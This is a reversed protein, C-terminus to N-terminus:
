NIRKFFITELDHQLVEDITKTLMETTNEWTFKQVAQIGNEIRKNRDEINIYASNLANVCEEQSGVARHVHFQGCHKVFPMCYCNSDNCYDSCGAYNYIIPVCGCAMAQAQCLEFGGGNCPHVLVDAAAMLKAIVETPQPQIIIGLTKSDQLFVGLDYTGINEKLSASHVIMILSVAHEKGKEFERWAEHILALNKRDQNAGVFLGFFKSSINLSNNSSAQLEQKFKAKGQKPFHFISHDVGYPIVDINLDMWRDILTKKCFEAPVIVKDYPKIQDFWKWYAPEGDITLWGIFKIHPFRARVIPLTIWLWPDHSFLVVDPKSQNIFGCVKEVDYMDSRQSDIINYPVKVKDAVDANGWGLQEVDYKDVLRNLCERSVISQGVYLLSASDSIWLLKPKSM